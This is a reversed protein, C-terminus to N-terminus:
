GNDIQVLLTLVREKTEPFLKEHIEDNRYFNAKLKKKYLQVRFVSSYHLDLSWVRFNLACRLNYM